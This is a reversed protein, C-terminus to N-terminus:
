LLECSTGKGLWISERCEKGGQRGLVWKLIIKGDIRIGESHESKKLNESWFKRGM